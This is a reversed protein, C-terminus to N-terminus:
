YYTYGLFIRAMYITGSVVHTLLAAGLVTPLFRAKWSWQRWGPEIAATSDAAFIRAMWRLLEAISFIFLVDLAINYGWFFNFDPLRPGAEALLLCQALAVALM